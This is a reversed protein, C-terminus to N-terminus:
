QSSSLPSAQITGGHIKTSSFRQREETPPQKSVAATTITLEFFDSGASIYQALKAYSVKIGGLHHQFLKDVSAGDIFIACRDM